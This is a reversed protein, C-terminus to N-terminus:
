DLSIKSWRDKRVLRGAEVAHGIVDKVMGEMSTGLNKLHIQRVAVVDAGVQDLAVEGLAGGLDGDM